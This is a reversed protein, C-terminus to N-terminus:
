ASEADTPTAESIEIRVGGIESDTISVGWGHAEAISNVISLGLGTGGSQTTYGYELVRDREDPDIGPGDDEVYFGNDLLGARVTIEDSGHQHANRFLHEFLRNLRSSDAKITGDDVIVLEADATETQDWARSVATAFEVSETETLRQGQRALTLLDETLRDMRTLAQDVDELADYGAVTEDIDEMAFSLHSDAITLPNRLDHTVVTAFEDLRENREQLKRKQELERQRRRKETIDRIVIIRGGGNEFASINLDLYREEGDIDVTVAQDDDYEGTAAAELAPFEEFVAAADDGVVAVTEDFLERAAPNTDIIRGDADVAVVADEMTEMLTKRAVPAVNLFEWRFLAFLLFAGTVAVGFPTPDIYDISTLTVGKMVVNLISTAWGVSMGLILAGTQKRYIGQVNRYQAILLVFAGSLQIWDFVAHGYWLPGYNAQLIGASTVQSSSLFYLQHFQNTLGGVLDVIVVLAVVALISRKKLQDWGTYEVAVYLWGAATLDVLPTRLIEAAWVIDPNTSLLKIGELLAWGIAAVMMVVLPTGGDKQRHTWASYAVAGMVATVAFYLLGIITPTNMM